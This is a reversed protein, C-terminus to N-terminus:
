WKAVLEQALVQRWDDTGAIIKDCRVLDSARYGAAGRRPRSTKGIPSIM